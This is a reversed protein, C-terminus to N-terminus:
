DLTIAYKLFGKVHPVALHDGAVDFLEEQVAPDAIDGPIFKTGHRGHNLEYTAGAWPDFDTAAIARFGSQRFGESFGGAGAFLDLCVPQSRVSTMPREAPM